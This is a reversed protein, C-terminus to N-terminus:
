RPGECAASARGTLEANSRERIADACYGAEVSAPDHSFMSLGNGNSVARRRAECTKACRERENAAVEDAFSALDHPRFCVVETQDELHMLRGESRAALRELVDTLASAAGAPNDDNMPQEM